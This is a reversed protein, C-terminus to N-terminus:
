DTEIRAETGYDKLSAYEKLTLENVLKGKYYKRPNGCMWCSCFTSTHVLKGLQREQNKVQGQWHNKRKAKIVQKQYRRARTKLKDM